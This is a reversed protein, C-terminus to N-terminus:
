KKRLPDGDRRFPRMVGATEPPSSPEFAASFQQLRTRRLLQAITKREVIMGSLKKGVVAHRDRSGLRPSSPSTTNFRSSACGGTVCSSRLLTIM